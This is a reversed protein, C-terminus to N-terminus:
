YNFNTLSSPSNFSLFRELHYLTDTSLENAPIYYVNYRYYATIIFEKQVDIAIKTADFNHTAIKSLTLASFRHIPLFDNQNLKYKRSLLEKIRAICNRRLSGYLANICQNPIDPSTTHLDFKCTDFKNKM